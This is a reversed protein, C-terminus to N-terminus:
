VHSAMDKGAKLGQLWANNLNFGGCPGDYDTVEGAFYLGPILKSEMTEPNLEELAVGGKTVQAEKWGKRGTPKLSFSRLGNALALVQVLSLDKAKTDPQIGAIKLVAYALSKKVITEVMDFATAGEAEQKSKLFAMLDASSFEPVFNLSIRLNAFADKVNGKDGVPLVSSMNM